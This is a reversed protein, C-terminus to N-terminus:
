GGPGVCGPNAQSREGVRDCDADQEAHRCQRGRRACRNAPGTFHHVPNAYKLSYAKTTLEGDAGGDAREVIAKIQEHDEATATVILMKNYIDASITARPVVPKIAMMVSTPNARKLVYTETTLEGGEDSDLEDLVDRIKAHDKETATIALTRNAVDVAVPVAPLLSRILVSAASPDARDLRYVVAQPKEAMPLQEVLHALTESLAVQRDAPGRVILSNTVANVQISLDKMDDPSLANYVTTVDMEDEAFRHVKIMQQPLAVAQKLEELLKAVQAHTEADAWIVLRDAAGGTVYELNSSPVTWFAARKRPM